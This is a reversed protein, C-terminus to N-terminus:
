DALEVAAGRGVPCVQRREARHGGVAQALVQFYPRDDTTPVIRYDVLDVLEASLTGSYFEPTLYSQEPHLPDEVVDYRAEFEPGISFLERLSDVEAQTWPVLASSFGISCPRPSSNSERRGRESPESDM